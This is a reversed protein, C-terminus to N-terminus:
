NTETETELGAYYREKERRLMELIIGSLRWKERCLPCIRKSATTKAGCYKCTYKYTKNTPVYKGEAKLKQTYKKVATRQHLIRCDDCVTRHGVSYFEAGCDKCKCLINTKSM